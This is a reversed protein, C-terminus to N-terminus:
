KILIEVRRNAQEEALLKPQEFVPRTNGYGVASLRNKDIGHDVLYKLIRKARAESIKQGMTSNDGIDFVHGQIEINLDANLALFDKLRNLKPESSPVIESTGPKFQIDEIKISKGSSIRNMYIIVEQDEFPNVEITREDFFYGDAKCLLSIECKRELNFFLDSARYVADIQKSDVIEVNGVIPTKKDSDRLLISFSPAFDDNRKDVIKSTEELNIEPVFNWDLVIANKLEEVTSFLVHIKEGQRLKLSYMFGGSVNTDLGIERFEKSLQLRKIEAVGTHIEGCIDDVEQSFIVMQLFSTDIKAKFSLMGPVSAIYSCWIQNGREVEVLSPYSAIFDIETKGTFQLNFHGNEFINIAGTCTSINLLSKSKQGFSAFSLISILCLIAIKIM